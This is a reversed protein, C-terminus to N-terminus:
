PRLLRLAEDLITKREAVYVTLGQGLHSFDRELEASLEDYAAKVSAYDQEGELGLVARATGPTMQQLKTQQNRLLQEADRARLGAAKAIERILAEEERAVVGDAGVVAMCAVMLQFKPGSVEAREAASLYGTVHAQLDIEDEAATDILRAQEYHSINMSDCIQSIRRRERRDVHGDIKMAHVLLPLLHHYLGTLPNKQEPAAIRANVQRLGRVAWLLVGLVAANMVSLLLDFSFIEVVACTLATYLAFQAADYDNRLAATGLVVTMAGAILSLIAFGQELAGDTAGALLSLKLVGLIVQIAGSCIMVTGAVLVRSSDGRVNENPFRAQPALQM